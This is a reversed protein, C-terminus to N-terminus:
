NCIPINIEKTELKFIKQNCIIDEGEIRIKPIISISNLDHETIELTISDQNITGLNTTFDLDKIDGPEIPLEIAYVNLSTLPDTNFSINYITFTGRNKLKLRLKYVLGGNQSIQPTFTNDYCLKDVSIAVDPCYLNENQNRGLNNSTDKAQNILYLGVMSGITVMMGVLLIFSILPSIAKKM